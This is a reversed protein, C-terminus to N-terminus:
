QTHLEMQFTCIQYATGRRRDTRKMKLFNIKEAESLRTNFHAPESICCTAGYSLMHAQQAGSSQFTKGGDRSVSTTVNHQETGNDEATQEWTGAMPNQMPDPLAFTTLQQVPCKACKLPCLCWCLPRELNKQQEVCKREKRKEQTAQQLRPVDEAELLCQRQEALAIRNRATSQEGESPEAWGWHCAFGGAQDLSTMIEEEKQKGTYNQMQQHFHRKLGPEGERNEVAAVSTWVKYCPHAQIGAFVALPWSASALVLICASASALSLFWVLQWSALVLALIHDLPQSDSGLHLGFTLFLQWPSSDVVPKLREVSDTKQLPDRCQEATAAWKCMGFSILSSGALMLSVQLWLHGDPSILHDM